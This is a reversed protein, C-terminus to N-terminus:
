NINEIQKKFKPLDEKIIYWVADLDVGFYRHIMIDRTGAINKWAIDPHNEKIAGSLNKVAEGIIEIARIIAYQRLEDKELDERSINKSFEEIKKINDLIHKIFQEEKM